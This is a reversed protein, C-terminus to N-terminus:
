KSARRCCSQSSSRSVIVFSSGSLRQDDSGGVRNGGMGLLQGREVLRDAVAVVPQVHLAAELRHAGLGVCNAAFGSGSASFAIPVLSTIVTPPADPGSNPVSNMASPLSSGALGVAGIQRRGEALRDFRHRRAALRLDALLGHEIHEIRHM